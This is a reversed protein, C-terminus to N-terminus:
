GAIKASILADDTSQERVHLSWETWSLDAGSQVSKIRIVEAKAGFFRQRAQELHKGLSCVLTRVV